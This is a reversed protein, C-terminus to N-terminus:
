PQRSSHHVVFTYLARTPRVASNCVAMSICETESLLLHPMFSRNDKSIVVAYSCTFGSGKASIKSLSYKCKRVTTYNYHLTIVTCKNQSTSYKQWDKEIYSLEQSTLDPTDGAVTAAETMAHACNTVPEGQRIHSRMDLLADLTVFVKNCTNFVGPMYNAITYIIVFCLSHSFLEACQILVCMCM